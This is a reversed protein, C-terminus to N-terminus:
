LSHPFEGAAHCNKLPKYFCRQCAPNQSWWHTSLFESAPDLFRNRHGPFVMYYVFCFLITDGTSWSLCGWLISETQQPFMPFSVEFNVSGSVSLITFGNLNKRILGCVWLEFKPAKSSQIKWLVLCTKALFDPGINRLVFDFEISPCFPNEIVRWNAWSWDESWRSITM